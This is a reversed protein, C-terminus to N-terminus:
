KQAAALWTLAARHSPYDSREPVSTLYTRLSAEATSLETRRLVLVVARYFELRPDRFGSHSAGALVLELNVADKRDTFFDAAEIYSQITDPHQDLAALYEVEAERWKKETSLFAARALRGQVPDLKTIFEVHQKAKEKDGGVIWPAEVLYQMLDRRAAINLPAVNVATEFAKKVKRALFFSRSQEAKAGYARGLWRHYEANQSAGKVAQEGYEIALDYNKEEYYTRSLWHNVAADEPATQHMALLAKIADDYRGAEFDSQAAEIPGVLVAALLFLHILMPIEM